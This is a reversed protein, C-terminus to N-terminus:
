KALVGADVANLMMAAMEARTIDRTASLVRTGDALEVGNLLRQEVAWAVSHRAWSSVEAADPFADLASLDADATNAGVANAIVAYFQERTLADGVGFRDSGDYGNMIGNEFAWNLSTAYWAAQDVDSLPAALASTDGEGLYNYLVAAAQERCLPDNPGFTGDGYGNMVKNAFAWEVAEHYWQGSDIDSFANAACLDDCVVEASVTYTGPEEPAPVYMGWHNDTSFEATFVRQADDVDTFTVTAKLPHDAAEVTKLMNGREDAPNLIWFELRDGTYPEEDGFYELDGTFENGISVANTGAGVTLGSAVNFANNGCWLTLSVVQPGEEVLLSGGSTFEQESVSFGTDSRVSVSGVPSFADSWSVTVDRLESAAEDISLVCDETVDRTMNSVLPVGNSEFTVSFDYTGDSLFFEKGSLPLVYGNWQASAQQITWDDSASAFTMRNLGACDLVVPDQQESVDIHQGAGNDGLVQVLFAKNSAYVLM